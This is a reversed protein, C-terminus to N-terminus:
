LGSIWFNGVLLLLLTLNHTPHLPVHLFCAPLGHPFKLKDPECRSQQCGRQEPEKRGEGGLGQAGESSPFGVFGVTLAKEGGMPVSRNLDPFDAVACFHVFKGET